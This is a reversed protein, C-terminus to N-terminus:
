GKRAEHERISDQMLQPLDLDGESADITVCGILIDGIKSAMEVFAADMASRAEPTVNLGIKVTM